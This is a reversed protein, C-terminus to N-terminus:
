RHAEPFRISLHRLWELVPNQSFGAPDFWWWTVCVALMLVAGWGFTKTLM